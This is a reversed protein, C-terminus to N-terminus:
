KGLKEKLEAIEAELEALRAEHKAIYKNCWHNLFAVFIAVTVVTLWIRSMNSRASKNFKIQREWCKQNLDAADYLGDVDRGMNVFNDNFIHMIENIDSTVVTSHHQESNNM